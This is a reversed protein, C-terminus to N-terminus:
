NDKESTAIDVQIKWSGSTHQIIAENTHWDLIKCRLQESFIDLHFQVLYRVSKLDWVIAIEKLPLFKPIMM